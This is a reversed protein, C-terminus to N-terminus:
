TSCVFVSQVYVFGLYRPFMRSYRRPAHMACFSREYSTARLRKCPGGITASAALAAFPPAWSACRFCSQFLDASSNRARCHSPWASCTPRTPRKRAPRAPSRASSAAPTRPRPSWMGSCPLIFCRFRDDRPARACADFVFYCVRSQFSGRDMYMHMILIHMYLLHVPHVDLKWTNDIGCERMLFKM